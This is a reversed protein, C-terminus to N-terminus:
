DPELPIPEISITEVVGPVYIGGRRGAGYREYHWHPLPRGAPTVLWLRLLHRKLAPDDFDEYATRSHLVTHNNIFQIDGREMFMSLHFEPDNVLDDVLKMAEKQGANLPPLEKYQATTKMHGGAYYATLRGATISFIPMRYYPRAGAPIEGRRDVWVPQYLIQLLDPRRRHIENHVAISSVIKSEGGSKAPNLCFLGIVDAFDSHYSLRENSMYSRHTPHLFIKREASSDLPNSVASRAGLDLVHGIMEGRANQCVPFGIHVGIGWYVLTADERSYREVPVGRVLVFGRGDLVERRIEALRAGLVPLPFDARTVQMAALGKARVLALAADLDAVEARNLRYQWETTHQLDASKWCAPDEVPHESIRLEDDCYEASVSNM